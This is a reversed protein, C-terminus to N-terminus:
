GGAVCLKACIHEFSTHTWKRQQRGDKSAVRQGRGRGGRRAEPFPRAEPEPSATAAAALLGLLLLLLLLGPLASRGAMDADAPLSIQRFPVHTSPPFPQSSLFPLLPLVVSILSDARRDEEDRLPPLGHKSLGRFQQPQPPSPWLCGRDRKGASGNGGRGAGGGIAEDCEAVRANLGRDDQM